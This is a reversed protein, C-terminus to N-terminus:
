GGRGESAGGWKGEGGEGKGERGTRGGERVYGERGERGGMKDKGESVSLPRPLVSM